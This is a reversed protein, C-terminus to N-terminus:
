PLAILNSFSAKVIENNKLIKVSVKESEVSSVTGEWGFYPYTLCIVSLGEKVTEYPRQTFNKKETSSIFMSSSGEKVIMYKSDFGKILNFLKNFTPIRGFGSLIGVFFNNEKAWLLTERDCSGAIIGECGIDIAKQLMSKRLYDGTYVIKGIGDKIYKDMFDIEILESPNPLIVLEGEVEAKSVEFFKVLYGSTKILCSRSPVVKHVKGTVGSLNWYDEQYKILVKSKGKTEIYGDFPAFIYSNGLYAVLDGSKIVNNDIIKRNLTYNSPIILERNTNKSYGIKTYSSVSDGENVLLKGKNPLSREIYFEDLYSINKYVPIIM